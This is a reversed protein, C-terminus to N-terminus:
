LLRHMEFEMRPYGPEVPGRRGTPVFGHRRYLKEAATNGETLELRVTVCGREVAWGLAADILLDSVGQGRARPAVWMSVLHASAADTTVGVTGVTETRATAAFQARARLVDRWDQANRALAQEITQGFATPADRLARLRVERFVAWEGPELRRIGVAGDPEGM